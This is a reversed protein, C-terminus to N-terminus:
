MSKTKVKDIEIVKESENDKNLSDNSNNIGLIALREQEERELRRGKEIAKSANEFLKTRTKRVLEIQEEESLNKAPGDAYIVHMKGNRKHKYIIECDVDDYNVITKMNLSKIESKMPALFAGFPTPNKEYEMKDYKNMEELVGLVRFQDIVTDKQDNYMKVKSLVYYFNYFPICLKLTNLKDVDPSLAKQTETYRKSNIKYGLDALDKYLRLGNRFDLFFSIGITSLCFWGFAM